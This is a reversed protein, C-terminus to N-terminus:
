EAVARVPEIRRVRVPVGGAPRLTVLPEPPIERNPTLSLEVRQALHALVIQGEMLAFNNGICVRAGAGFPIYAGRPLAKEASAEFRDPDFREPDAFYEPRRHMGVINVVVDTGARVRHGGIEVDELSLRSTLYAPPYLRLAEKFVQLAYPLRPLDEASPIRGGLVAAAEARLRAYADPNRALLYFSWSLANATTEHGALFITMAEDRV